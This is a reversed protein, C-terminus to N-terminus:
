GNCFFVVLFFKQIAKNENMFIIKYCLLICSLMIKYLTECHLYYGNSTRHIFSLISDGMLILVAFYSEQKHIDKVCASRKLKSADGTVERKDTANIM